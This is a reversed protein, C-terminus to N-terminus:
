GGLLGLATFILAEAANEGALDVSADGLGADDHQAL